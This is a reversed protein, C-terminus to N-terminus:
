SIDLEFSLSIFNGAFLDEFKERNPRKNTKDLVLGIVSAILTIGTILLYPLPGYVQGLLDVVFPASVSGVRSTMQCIGMGQTRFCHCLM